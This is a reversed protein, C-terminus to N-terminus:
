HAQFYSCILTGSSPISGVGRNGPVPNKIGSCFLKKEKAYRNAPRCKDQTKQTFAPYLEILIALM